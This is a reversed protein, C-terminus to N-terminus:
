LGPAARRAQGARKSGAGIRCAASQGSPLAPQEPVLSGGPQVQYPPLLLPASARVAPLIVFFFPPVPVPSLAGLSNGFAAKSEVTCQPPPGRSLRFEDRGAEARTRNAQKFEAFAEELGLVVEEPLPAAHHRRRELLEFYVPDCYDLVFRMSGRYMGHDAHLEKTIAEVRDLQASISERNTSRKATSLLGLAAQGAHVVSPFAPATRRNATTPKAPQSTM